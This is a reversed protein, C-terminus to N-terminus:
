AIAEEARSQQLPWMQAYRGDLALLEACRV